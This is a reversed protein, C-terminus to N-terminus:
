PQIRMQYWQGEQTQVEAEKPILTDLVERADPVLRGYGKFRSVIDSVPRGIDTQILNIVRATAPTFRQIRLQHDLFLTGINTGAMLNNMDNNARSLEEIKKQLETNVTVLEENVSQLEEKSTELEENSSQLEENTSKLEENTTELQEIITRLYEGKTCLERELTLVRREQDSIPAGAGAVAPRDAPTVDEFIVMLLGGAAEPKMVPQVILNVVSTDGNSKVQLGDYRVPAQLTLAKRAAATLEMRLGERAMHLLNLSADGAAPELYKGTRGHIYLVDFEANILVSAPVYAELLVQEALDRAGGPHSPAGASGARRVAGEAALPPTYPAIAARSTIVGKRQYIKLVVLKLLQIQSKRQTPTHVPAGLIRFACASRAFM